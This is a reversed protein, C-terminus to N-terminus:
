EGAPPFRPKAYNMVWRMTMALFSKASTAIWGGEDGRPSVRLDSVAIWNLVKRKRVFSDAM